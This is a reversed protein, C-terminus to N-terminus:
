SVVSARRVSEQAQHVPVLVRRPEAQDLAIRPMESCYDLTGRQIHEGKDAEVWTEILGGGRLGRHGVAGGGM